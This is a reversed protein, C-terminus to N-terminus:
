QAEIKVNRVSLYIDPGIKACFYFVTCRAFHLETCIYIYKLGRKESGFGICYFSITMPTRTLFAFFSRKRGEFVGEHIVFLIVFHAIKLSRSKFRLFYQSNFKLKCIIDGSVASHGFRQGAPLEPLDYSRDVIAMFAPDHM